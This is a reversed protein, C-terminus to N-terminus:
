EGEPHAHLSSGKTGIGQWVREGGHIFRFGCLCSSFHWLWNFYSALLVPLSGSVLAINVSITKVFLKQCHASHYSKLRLGGHEVDPELPKIQKQDGPLITSSWAM